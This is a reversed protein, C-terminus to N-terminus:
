WGRSTSGANLREAKSEFHESLAAHNRALRRYFAVWQHRRSERIESHYQRVSEQWSEEKEDAEKRQSARREILQNISSELEDPETRRLAGVLSAPESM